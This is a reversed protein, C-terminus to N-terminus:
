RSDLQFIQGSTHPQHHHLFHIFEAVCECTNFRGLSHSNMVEVRRKASTTATMRTKLFGPLVCNVRINSHGHRTALDRTLGLLAAKSSAYAVQGLPPSLASFSSVFIIHGEQRTTMNPLVAEACALAGHFNVAWMEDWNKESLRPLLSDIAMGSACVLLDVARKSFFLSVAAEDRVDLESSGPASVSWGASHLKLAICSGLSGTGGTVVAHRRESHRM